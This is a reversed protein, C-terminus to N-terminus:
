ATPSTPSPLEANSSSPTLAPTAGGNFMSKLAMDNRKQRVREIEEAGGTMKLKKGKVFGKLEEEFEDGKNAKERERNKQSAAIAKLRREPDIAANRIELMVTSLGGHGEEPPPPKFGKTKVAGSGRISIVKEIHGFVESLAKHDELLDGLFEEQHSLFQQEEVINQLEEEWTKKWVPKVTDVYENLSALEAAVEAIDKSLTKVVNSRPSIFRKLVDDKLQEVTDQLEEVKTLVNQTRSDLSAKGATVYERAGGVSSSSLKRVAQAQSRLSGLSEKTQNMFDVYLQRTVGLDRRLNQVEDFQTKLDLVIRGSAESLMSGGTMQPQLSGTMQPVIGNTYPKSAESAHVLRSLRRAVQQFQKDTPRSVPTDTESFPQTVITPQWLQSMRKSPGVTSRLEKLEQTLGSMRQDIHQKIQDM